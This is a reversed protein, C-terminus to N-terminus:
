LRDITYQRPMSQHYLAYVGPGSRTEPDISTCGLLPSEILEQLLQQYMATRNEQYTKRDRNLLPNLKEIAYWQFDKATEYTPCLIVRWRGTQIYNSVRKEGQKPDPLDIRTRTSGSPRKQHRLRYGLAEAIHRRLASAEVNGRCHDTKIRKLVDKSDGVYIVYM